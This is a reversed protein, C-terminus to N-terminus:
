IGDFFHELIFAPNPEGAAVPVPQETVANVGQIGREYEKKEIRHIWDKKFSDIVVHPSEM